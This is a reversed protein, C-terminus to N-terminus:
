QPNARANCGAANGASRQTARPPPYPRKTLRERGQHRKFLGRQSGSKSPNSEHNNEKFNSQLDICISALQNVSQNRQCPCCRHLAGPLVQCNQPCTRSLYSANCPGHHSYDPTPGSHSSRCSFPTARFPRNTSSLQQIHLVHGAWSIISM